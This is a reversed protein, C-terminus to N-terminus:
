LIRGYVSLTKKLVIIIQIRKQVPLFLLGRRRGRKRLLYCLIITEKHGFKYKIINWNTVTKTYM